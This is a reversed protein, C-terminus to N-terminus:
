PSLMKRVDGAGVILTACDVEANASVPSTLDSVAHSNECVRYSTYGRSQDCSLQFFFIFLFNM